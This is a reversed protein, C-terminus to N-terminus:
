YPWCRWFPRPTRRCGACSAASSRRWRGRCPWSGPLTQQGPPTLQGLRPDFGSGESLLTHLYLPHGGTGLYLRETAQDDLPPGPLGAALEAVEDRGLGGLTLHVRHEMSALLRQAAQDLQSGPGRYTLVAAVPDVSLRRLTFTLADLSQRDAWQLDEVLIVTPAATALEGVVQLLQAGVTFASAAPGPGPLIAPVPGGASRFLQDVLGFDLDAEAQDARASLVRVDALAQRALASKGMGPDGEISVLWPEGDAVQRLTEAIQDLEAVRGVFLDPAM